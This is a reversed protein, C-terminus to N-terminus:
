LCSLPFHFWSVCALFVVCFFPHSAPLAGDRKRDAYTTMLVGHISHPDTSFIINLKRMNMKITFSSKLVGRVLPRQGFPFALPLLGYGLADGQTVQRITNAGQLPLLTKEEDDTNKYKQGKSKGEALSRQNLACKSRDFWGPRHGPSHVKAREPRVMVEPISEIQVQSLQIIKNQWPYCLVNNLSLGWCKNVTYCGM